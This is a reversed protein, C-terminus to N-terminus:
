HTAYHYPLKLEVRFLTETQQIDLAYAHDYKLSLRKKINDLGVGGIKDKQTDRIDYTNETRFLVVKPQVELEINVYADPNHEFDCHKFCNEVLPILMMPEIKIRDKLGKQRFGIDVPSENRMQFLKIYQEIQNVEESLLVLDQQSKYIVYRLLNSLQMVMDATKDSKIIALTYINNLTNFLFHPNIQGRLAQLQAERQQTIIALNQKESKFRNIMLQYFTGIIVIVFNTLFAAYYLTYKPALEPTIRQSVPFLSNLYGRLLTIAAFLAGVSISFLLYKKKELYRNVLFINAYFLVALPVVNVLARILSYELRMFPSFVLAFSMLIMCWVAIHLGSEMKNFDFTIRISM